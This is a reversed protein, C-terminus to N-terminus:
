CPLNTPIVKKEVDEVIFSKDLVQDLAAPVFVDGITGDTLQPLGRGTTCLFVEIVQCFLVLYVGSFLSFWLCFGARACDCRPQPSYVFAYWTPVFCHHCLYAVQLDM